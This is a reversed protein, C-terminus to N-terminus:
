NKGDHKKIEASFLDAFFKRVEAVREATPPCIDPLPNAIHFRRYKSQGLNHFPLVDVQEIGGLGALFEKLALLNNQDDTIGPILPFRVIVRRGQDVLGHLNKLILRNAVGTYQRHRNDDMLKVDYLFLDVLPSLSALVASPAYGCTDLCTHIGQKRCAALLERLFHPQALPEGGTFTVGGGSEDHFITEKGIEQMVEAVTMKRGCYEEEVIEVGDLLLKKTSSETLSRQSEPNHCWWCRLPCGKFFIATRIGPGDHIAYRKIDFVIGANGESM